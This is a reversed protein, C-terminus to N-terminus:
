EKGIDRHAVRVKYGELLLRKAITEAILVSRHQGGTCGFGVTLYSRGEKEYKPILFELLNLLKEITENVEPEKMMFDIVETHKGTLQKLHPVFHPNPLFRLDFLLDIALPLGHKFGFSMLTLSMGVNDTASFLDVFYRRLTHVTHNSTDVVIDALDRIPSLLKKEIRVAELLNDTTEYLPHPRRTESFRRQLAEDSAELFMLRTEIGEQFKLEEYIPTFQTLFHRERADIVLLAKTINDQTRKCLEVFKPILATPLNDVCFYGLDEFVKAVTRKGSGSLGTIITLQLTM